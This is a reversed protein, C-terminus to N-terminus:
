PISVVLISYTCRTLALTVGKARAEQVFSAEATAQRTCTHIYRKLIMNDTWRQQGRRYKAFEDPPALSEILNRTESGNALAKIPVPPAAILSNISTLLVRTCMEPAFM